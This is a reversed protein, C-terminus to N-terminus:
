ENLSQTYIHIEVCFLFIYFIFDPSLTAAKKKKLFFDSDLNLNLLKEM